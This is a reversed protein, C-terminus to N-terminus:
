RDNGSGSHNGYRRAFLHRWYRGWEPLLLLAAELHYQPFLEVAVM